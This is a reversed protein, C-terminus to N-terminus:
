GTLKNIKDIITYIELIIKMAGMLNLNKYEKTIQSEVYKESNYIDNEELFHRIYGFLTDFNALDLSFEKSERWLTVCKAWKEELSRILIYLTDPFRIFAQVRAEVDKNLKIKQDEKMNYYGNKLYLSVIQNKLDAKVPEIDFYEWGLEDFKQM